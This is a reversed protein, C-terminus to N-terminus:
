ANSWEERPMRLYVKIDEVALVLQSFRVLDPHPLEGLLCHYRGSDIQKQIYEDNQKVSSLM